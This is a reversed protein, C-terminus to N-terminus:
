LIHYLEIITLYSINQSYIGKFMKMKTLTFASVGGSKVNKCEQRFRSITDLLTKQIYFLFSRKSVKKKTLM